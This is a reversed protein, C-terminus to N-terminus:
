EFTIKKIRRLNKQYDKRDNVFSKYFKPNSITIEPLFCSLNKESIYFNYSSFLWEEPKQCLNRSTPNLHIYRTIHLLQENNIIRVAKFRSQWLPGKRKILLNFFRTYSNEVDNIYKSLLNDKLIKVLLHYHDPMICYAIIKVISNEKPILLNPIFGYTTNLYESLSKRRTISNYFDLAQLFRNITKKNKFILFTAISKNFIHFFEGKKYYNKKM